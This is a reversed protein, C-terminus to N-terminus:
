TLCGVGGFALSAQFRELHPSFEWGRELWGAEEEAAGNGGGHLSPFSYNAHM